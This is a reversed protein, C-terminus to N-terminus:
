SELRSSTKVISTTTPRLRKTKTKFTALGFKNQSKQKQRTLNSIDQQCLYCQKKAKGKAYLM